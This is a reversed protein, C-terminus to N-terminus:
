NSGTPTGGCCLVKTVVAVYLGSARGTVWGVMDFCQLFNVATVDVPIDSM